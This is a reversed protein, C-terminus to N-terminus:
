IQTKVGDNIKGAFVLDSGQTAHFTIKQISATAENHRISIMSIQEHAPVELQCRVSQDSQYGYKGTRTGDRFHLKISGITDGINCSIMQIESLACVSYKM